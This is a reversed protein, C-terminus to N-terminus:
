FGEHHSDDELLNFEMMKHKELSELKDIHWDRLDKVMTMFGYPYIQVAMEGKTFWGFKGETVDYEWLGTALSYNNNVDVMICSYEGAAPPATKGDFCYTLTLM